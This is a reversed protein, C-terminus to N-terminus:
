AETTAYGVAINMHPRVYTMPALELPYCTMMMKMDLPVTVAHTVQLTPIAKTADRPAPRLLRTCRLDHIVILRFMSLITRGLLGMGQM